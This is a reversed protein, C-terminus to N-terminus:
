KEKHIQPDKLSMHLKEFSEKDRKDCKSAITIAGEDKV